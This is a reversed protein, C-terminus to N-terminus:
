AEVYQTRRTRSNQCETVTVGYLRFEGREGPTSVLDLKSCGVQLGDGENPAQKRDGRVAEVSDGLENLAPDERRM